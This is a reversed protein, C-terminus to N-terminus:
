ENIMERLANNFILNWDLSKIFEETNKKCELYFNDENMLKTVAEVLSVSDYDIAIGLKEQTILEHIWTFKTIVVPLGCSLYTKPKTLDAFYVTSLKTGNYPAIGIRFSCLTKLLVDIDYIAGMFEVYRDIALLKSMKELAPKYEGDGIIIFKFGNVHKIIEPIAELVLQIGQREIIDGCFVLTKAIRVNKRDEPIADLWIGIPV